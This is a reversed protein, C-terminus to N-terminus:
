MIVKMCKGKVQKQVVVSMNCNIDLKPENSIDTDILMVDDFIYNNSLDIKEVVLNKNFSLKVSNNNMFNRGLM